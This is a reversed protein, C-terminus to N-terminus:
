PFFLKSKEDVYNLGFGIQHGLEFPVSSVGVPLPHQPHRVDPDSGRVPLSNIVRFVVM